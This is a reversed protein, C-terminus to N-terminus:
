QPAGLPYWCAAMHGPAVNELPPRQSTCKQGARPCRPAFACGPPLAWLAPVTGAIEPLRGRAGPVAEESLHPISGLLGHTYPHRPAAFLQETTTEEVIRGAYMVAVRDATEAVVALDHTILITAAGVSAQLDRFTELIQAQTTVDLATTPEDAILVDPDCALALAIVVRQRMGGSMQHPYDDFRRKPDPIRVREFLEEVRNRASAANLGQHLRLVEAVQPGVRISPNLSTMPEQFILGIRNGRVKRLEAEGASALDIGDFMIRGATIEAVPEPLLRMIAMATMSKGSGSEGVLALVENRSVRFNLDSVAEFTRERTALEVTLGEISLLAKM